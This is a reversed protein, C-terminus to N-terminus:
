ANWVRDHHNHHHDIMTIYWTQVKRAPMWEPLNMVSWHGTLPKGWFCLMQQFYAAIHTQQACHCTVWLPRGSCVTRTVELKRPFGVNVKWWTLYSVLVAVKHWTYPIFDASACPLSLTWYLYCWNEDTSILVIHQFCPPCVCTLLCSTVRSLWAKWQYWWGKLLTLVPLQM